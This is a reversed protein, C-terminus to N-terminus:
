LEAEVGLEEEGLEIKRLKNFTSYGDFKAESAEYQVKDGPKLKGFTSFWNCHLAFEEEVDKLKVKFWLVTGSETEQLPEISEVEGQM